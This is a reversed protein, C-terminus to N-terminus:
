RGRTTTCTSTIKVMQRTRCELYKTPVGIGLQRVGPLHAKPSFNKSAAQCGRGGLEAVAGVVGVEGSLVVVEREIGGEGERKRKVM